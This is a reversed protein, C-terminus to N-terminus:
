TNKKTTHAIEIEIDINVRFCISRHSNEYEWLLQVRPQMMFLSIASDNVTDLSNNVNLLRKRVIKMGHTWNDEIFQLWLYDM